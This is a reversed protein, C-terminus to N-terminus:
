YSKMFHIETDWEIKNTNSSDPNFAQYIDQGQNKAILGFYLPSAPSKQLYIAKNTDVSRVFIYHTDIDAGGSYTCTILNGDDYVNYTINELIDGTYSWGHYRKDKILNRFDETDELSCHSVLLTLLAIIYNM